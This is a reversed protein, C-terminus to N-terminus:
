VAQGLQYCRAPSPQNPPYYTNIFVPVVPVAPELRPM